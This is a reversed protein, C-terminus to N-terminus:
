ISSDLLGHSGEEVKALRMDIHTIVKELNRLRDEISLEKDHPKQEQEKEGDPLFWEPTNEVHASNIVLIVKGDLVISYEDSHVRPYAVVGAKIDRQLIYSPKM